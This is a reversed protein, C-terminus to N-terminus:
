YHELNNPDDKLKIRLHYIHVNVVRTDEDHEILQEQCFHSRGRGWRRLWGGM